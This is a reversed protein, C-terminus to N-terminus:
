STTAHTLRMSRTSFVPWLPVRSGLTVPHKITQYPMRSLNPRQPRPTRCLLVSLEVTDVSSRTEDLGLLASTLLIDADDSEVVLDGAALGLKRTGKLSEGAGEELSRRQDRGDLTLKTDSGNVLALNNLEVVLAM